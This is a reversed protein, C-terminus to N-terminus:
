KKLIVYATASGNILLYSFLTALAAGIFGYIPILLSNGFFNVALSFLGFCFLLFYKKMARFIDTNPSFIYSCMASVALIKFPLISATYRQGNILNMIYGSFLIVLAVMPLSFLTMTKMWKKLFIKQRDISEVMDIKSTRVKLVTKIAPFMLMLFGYYKFAVGYNALDYSPRLRSIMFIDLQSFLSISIFYLILWFSARFFFVFRKFSLILRKKLLDNKIVMSILLLGFSLVVIIQVVAVRLFDLKGLAIIVFLFLLFSAKQLSLIFGATKYREQVQYYRSVMVIFFLGIAVIFGLFIPKSYLNKRFMLLDIKM